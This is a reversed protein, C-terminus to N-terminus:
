RMENLLNQSNNGAKIQALVIPLRQLMQKPTLIKLVTGEQKALRKAELIVSGYDEIFKIANNRANFLTNINALTKKQEDNKNGKRIKKLIIIM